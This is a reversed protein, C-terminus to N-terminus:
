RRSVRLSPRNTPSEYGPRAETQLTAQIGPVETASAFRRAADQDDVSRDASLAVLMGVAWASLFCAVEVISFLRQWNIRTPLMMGAM